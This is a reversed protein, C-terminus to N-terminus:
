AADPVQTVPFQEWTRGDLKRGGAKPTNGGWQKFFFAKGDKQCKDRIERVWNARDERPVWESDRYDVLGRRERMKEDWLHNGSEGGVIVWSIGELNLDPLSGLLPECSLFRVQAPVARLHDVRSLVRNSEVSTGLWIHEVPKYWGDQEFGSLVEAMREPRKTLVQYRHRPTEMMVNFVERLFEEPSEEHFLDSMSNVFVRRPKKWSKPEDIKDWHLTFDFGNQYRPNDMAELREAM